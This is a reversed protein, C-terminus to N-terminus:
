LGTWDTLVKQLIVEGSDTDTHDEQVLGLGEVWWANAQASVDETFPGLGGTASWEISYTHEIRWATMTEDGIEIEELGLDTYTGTVPVTALIGLGTPDAVELAYSYTWSTGSGVLDPHPLYNRPPTLTATLSTPM